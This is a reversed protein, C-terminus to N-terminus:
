VFFMAKLYIRLMLRHCIRDIGSMGPLGIDTLMVEPNASMLGTIADEASQFAGTVTIGAEGRLLLTLNDLLIPDDEVIVIRM